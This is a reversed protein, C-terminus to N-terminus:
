ENLIPFLSDAMYKHGEANPHPDGPMAFLDSSNKGLFKPLSDIFIYDFKKAIEKMDEHIYKFKYEKLNSIDPVMLLYININNKNAYDSLEKLKIKMKKYGPNGSDYVLKYHNELTNPGFKNFFKNYASWFTLALQSNKLLFNPKTPKLNEADRLFYNVVIDTPKIVELEKFYRTVYRETNYNGVGGNYVEVKIGENNFMQKIRSSLIQEERVGWGLTISGGLFLIRRVKNNINHNIKDGRLGYKNLRIDVNQLTAKNDKKHEFDLIKNESKKKLKKAYKWMEVDYNDMNANKNRIVFEAILMSFTTSTFILFISLFLEKFKFNNNKLSNFKSM